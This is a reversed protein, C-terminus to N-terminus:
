CEIETVIVEGSKGYAYTGTEYNTEEGFDVNGDLKKGASSLPDIKSQRDLIYFIRGASDEVEKKDALDQFAAGLGFMGFLLAFMSVLFNELGFKEPYHVLLYGGWWFQLANVWQQLFMSLGSTFGAMLNNRKYDTDSNLIAEKYNDFRRKELTLASVTRMNLLTEVAIGGPSNLEDNSNGTGQDEGLIKKTEM